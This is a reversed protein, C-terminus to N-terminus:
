ALIDRGQEVLDRVHVARLQEPQRLADVPGDLLQVGRHDESAELQYAADRGLIEFKVSLPPQM